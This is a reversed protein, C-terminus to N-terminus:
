VSNLGVAIHPQNAFPKSSSAGSSRARATEPAASGDPLTPVIENVKTFRLGGDTSVAIVVNRPDRPNIAITDEAHNGRM